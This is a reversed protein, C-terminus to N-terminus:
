TTFRPTLPSASGGRRQVSQAAPPKLPAPLGGTRPGPCRRPFIKKFGINPQTFRGITKPGHNQVCHNKPGHYQISRCTYIHTTVNFPIYHFILSTTRTKPDLPFDRHMHTKHTISECQKNEKNLFEYAPLKQVPNFGVNPILATKAELPHRQQQPTKQEPRHYVRDLM